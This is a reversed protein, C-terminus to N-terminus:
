IIYYTHLKNSRSQERDEIETKQERLSLVCLCFFFNSKGSFLCSLSFVSLLNILLFSKLLPINLFLGLFVENRSVRITFIMGPVPIMHLRHLSYVVTQVTTLRKNIHRSFRGWGHIGSASLDHRCRLRQWVNWLQRKDRCSHRRSEDSVATWVRWHGSQANWVSCSSGQLSSFIDMIDAYICSVLYYGHGNSINM